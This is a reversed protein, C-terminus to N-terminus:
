KKGALDAAASRPLVLDVSEGDNALEIVVGDLTLAGSPRADVPPPSYEERLYPCGSVGVVAVVVLLVGAWGVARGKGRVLRLGSLTLGLALAAGGVIYAFRSPALLAGRAPPPDLKQLLTKPIRLRPQADNDALQIVLPPARNAQVPRAFREPLPDLHLPPGAPGKRGPLDACAPAALTLLLGLAGMLRLMM